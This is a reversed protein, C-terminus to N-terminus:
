SNKSFAQFLEQLEEKVEDPTSVYKKIETEILERYRRRIRHLYNKVDGESVHFHRAIKPYSIDQGKEMADLYGEFIDLYVRRTPTKYEQRINELAQKLIVRAWDRLFGQETTKKDAPERSIETEARAFDLSLIKQGGGRKQAVAREREKSLFHNLAVLIFTRFKGKGRDVSKLFEKELFVTFFSQTLDKATEIDHGKRRIYFYVPKWYASILYTIAETYDSADKDGAKLVRTWLTKKFRYHEGGIKTEEIM